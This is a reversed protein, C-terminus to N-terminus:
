FPLDDFDEEHQDVASESLSNTTQPEPERRGWLIANGLIPMARQEEKTMSNYLDKDLSQKVLHTDKSDGVKNKIEM